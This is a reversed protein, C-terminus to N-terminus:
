AQHAQAPRAPCAEAVGNQTGWAELPAPVSRICEFDQVEGHAFDIRFPKKFVAKLGYLITSRFVQFIQVVGYSAEM